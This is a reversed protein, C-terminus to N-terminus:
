KKIKYPSFFNDFKYDMFNALYFYKYVYKFKVIKSEKWDHLFYNEEM